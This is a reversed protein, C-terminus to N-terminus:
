TASPATKSRGQDMYAEGFALAPSFPMRRLVKPDNFRLRVPDPRADVPLHHFPQGVVRFSTGDPCVITLDGFRILRRMFSEFLM